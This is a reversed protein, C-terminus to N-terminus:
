PPALRAGPGGSLLGLILEVEGNDLAAAQVIYHTQGAARLQYAWQVQDASMGPSRPTKVEVWAAGHVGVLILDPLGRDGDCQQSRGCYHSLVGAATARSQIETVIEDHTRTVM